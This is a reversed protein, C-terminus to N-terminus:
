AIGRLASKFGAIISGRKDPEPITQAQYAKIQAQTADIRRSDTITANGAQTRTFTGNNAATVLTNLFGAVSNIKHLTMRYALEFLVDQALEPQKLKKVVAKCAKKQVDDLQAPFVLKESGILEPSVPDPIIVAAQQERELSVVVTKQQDPLIDPQQKIIELSENSELVCKNEVCEFNVRHSEVPATATEVKNQPTDYINWITGSQIRQYTAYGARILENMTRYVKNLGVGLRRKLDRANFKWHHPKSILYILAATATPSVNADNAIANSILTFNSAHATRIIPM